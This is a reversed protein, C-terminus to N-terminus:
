GSANMVVNERPRLVPWGVILWVAALPLLAVVRNMGLLRFTLARDLDGYLFRPGLAEFIPRHFDPSIWMDVSVCVLSLLISAILLPILIVRMPRRSADWLRAFPLAMFPLAAVLHRPGTSDGGNWYVYGANMALYYAFVLVAVIAVLRWPPERICVIVAVPFLAMVPALPLLGRNWGFLLEVAVKFSPWSVGLLGTEMGPFGQVGMYGIKWPSGFAVLNYLLLPVIAAALGAAAPVFVRTMLSWRDPKALAWGACCFGIIAVVPGAPFEVVFAAGLALGALSARLMSRWHRPRSLQVATSIEAFGLLLLGGSAAHGFFVSAWGWFPTAFGLTVAALVSGAHSANRSRCWNYLAAVAGAAILSVTGLTACYIIVSLFPGPRDVTRGTARWRLLRDAVFTVPVALFSLGPAKDSYYAGGVLARDITYDALPGITLEHREVIGLTLGIRSIVNSNDPAFFFGYNM